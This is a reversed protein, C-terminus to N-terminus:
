KRGFFFPHFRSVKFRDDLYTEEVEIMFPGSWTLIVKVYGNCLSMLHSM